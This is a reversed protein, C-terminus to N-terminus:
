CSARQTKRETQSCWRFLWLPVVAHDPSFSSEVLSGSWADTDARLMFGERSRTLEHPQIALCGQYYHSNPVQLCAVYQKSNMSYVREVRTM